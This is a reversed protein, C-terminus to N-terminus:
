SIADPRALAECLVRTLERLVGLTLRQEAELRTAPDDLADDDLEDDLTDLAKVKTLAGDARITFRLRDRWVLELQEVTMGDRLHALVNEAPLGLRTVTISGGDRPELLKASDGLEFEAPPGELLWRSLRSGHEESGFAPTVRWQGLTERLLSNVQSNRKEGANALWAQKHRADIIVRTEAQRPFAQPLLELLAKERAQRLEDRSPEREGAEEALKKAAHDQIVRPPVAREERRFLLGFAGDTEIALEDAVVPAWGMSEVQQSLTPAFRKGALQESLTDLSPDPWHALDFAAIQSFLM